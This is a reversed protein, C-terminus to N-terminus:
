DRSRPARGCSWPCKGRNSVVPRRVEERGSAGLRLAGDGTRRNTPDHAAGEALVAAPHALVMRLARPFALVGTGAAAGAHGARPAIHGLPVLRRPKRRAELSLEVFLAPAM